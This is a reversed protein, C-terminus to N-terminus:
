LASPADGRRPLRAISPVLQVSSASAAETAMATDTRDISDARRSGGGSGALGCWGLGGRSAAVVTAALVSGRGTQRGAAVSAKVASV